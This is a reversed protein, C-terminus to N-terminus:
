QSYGYKRAPYVAGCPQAKRRKNKISLVAGAIEQLVPEAAICDHALALNTKSPM